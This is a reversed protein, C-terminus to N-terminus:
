APVMGLLEARRAAPLRSFALAAADELERRTTGWTGGWSQGSNDPLLARWDEPLTHLNTNRFRFFRGAGWFSWGRALWKARESPEPDPKGHSPVRELTGLARYGEARPDDRDQLWDAFRSRMGHHNPHLDLYAQWDGESGFEGLYDAYVLRPTTEGPSDAISALLSEATTM